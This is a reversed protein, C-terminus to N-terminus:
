RVTVPFNWYTTPSGVYRNQYVEEVAKARNRFREIALAM